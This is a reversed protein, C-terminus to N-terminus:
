RDLNVVWEGEGTMGAEGKGGSDGTLGEAWGWGVMQASSESTIVPLEISMYGSSLLMVEALGESM